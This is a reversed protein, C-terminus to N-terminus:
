DGLENKDEVEQFKIDKIKSYVEIRFSFETQNFEFDNQLPQSKNLKPFSVAVYYTGKEMEPCSIYFRDKKGNDSGIYDLKDNIQRM